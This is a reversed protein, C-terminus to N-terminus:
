KPERWTLFVVRLSVGAGMYYTSHLLVRDHVREGLFGAGGAAATHRRKASLLSFAERKTAPNAPRQHHGEFQAANKM